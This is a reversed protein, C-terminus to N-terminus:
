FPRDHMLFDLIFVLPRWCFRGSAVQAQCRMTGAPQRVRPSCSFEERLRRFGFRPAFGNLFHGVREVGPRLYPAVRFSQIQSFNM